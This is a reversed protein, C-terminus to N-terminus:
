QLADMQATFRDRPGITLMRQSLRVTNRDVADNIRGQKRAYFQIGHPSRAVAQVTGAQGIPQLSKLGLLSMEM